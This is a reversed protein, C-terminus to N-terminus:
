KQAKSVYHKYGTKFGQGVLGAWCANLEHVSRATHDSSQQSSDQRDSESVNGCPRLRQSDLSRATAGSYTLYVKAIPSRFQYQTEPRRLASQVILVM